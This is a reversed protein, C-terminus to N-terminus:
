RERAIGKVLPVFRVPLLEEEEFGKDSRTVKVLAQHNNGADVPLVMTGGIALQQKLSDPIHPAAATVIIQSFPAQQPWGRYGDATMTTINRLGLKEFRKEAEQLLSRYREISYVRRCLKSLIATQYGSGTGIELVKSRDDLGLQETMYGVVFPQSITQGSSIPLSQDLWAQDRFTEPVFLERPTTEIAALVATDRIGRNRLEMILRIIHNQNSGAM